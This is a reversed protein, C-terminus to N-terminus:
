AAQKRDVTGTSAPEQRSAWLVFGFIPIIFLSPAFDGATVVAALSADIMLGSVIVPWM